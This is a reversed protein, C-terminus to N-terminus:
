PLRWDENEPANPAFPSIRNELIEISALVLGRLREGNAISVKSLNKGESTSPAIYHKEALRKWLTNPGIEIHRGQRSAINQAAAFASHPHLVIRKKEFDIWGIRSGLGVKGSSTFKWGWKEYEQSPEGGTNYDALHAEGMSIAAGVLDLFREGEDEIVQHRWQNEAAMSLATWAKKWIDKMDEQTIASSELAFQLFMKLGLLLSAMTDPTRLHKSKAMAAQRIRPHEERLVKAMEHMKPALWKLYASMSQALLGEAALKQMETLRGLDVSGAKTECIFLRALLSQIRPLDEGSSIPLGRPANVGKLTRGDYHLRGRGSRNGVSRFFRDAERHFRAVDSNSGVPKFDDIVCVADKFLFATRELSNATSHWNGPFNRADFGSGYHAQALATIESKLTGTAGCIFVSLAVDFAQALPARYIACFIPYTIEPMALNLLQLSAQIARVLQDGSPPEPLEFRDLVSSKTVVLIDTDNGNAGIGGGAHLYRYEGNIERWGVHEYAHRTKYNSSLQQIACRVHDKVSSGANLFAKNGWNEPIWSMSSFQEAPVEVTPLPHGDKTTGKITFVTRATLGDDRIEELVIRADFNCLRKPFVGSRTHQLHTLCGDEVIYAGGSPSEPPKIGTIEEAIAIIKPFDAKCDLDFCNAIFQFIDGHPKAEQARDYFWKENENFVLSPSEDIRWPVCCRYCGKGEETIEIWKEQDVKELVAHFSLARYLADKHGSDSPSDNEAFRHTNSRSKNAREKKGQRTFHIYKKNQEFADTM